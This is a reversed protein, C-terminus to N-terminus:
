SSFRIGKMLTASFMQIPRSGTFAESQDAVALQVALRVGQELSQADVDIRLGLHACERDRAALHDLDCFGERM